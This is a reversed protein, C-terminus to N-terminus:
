KKIKKNNPTKKTRRQRAVKRADYNKGHLRKFISKSRKM